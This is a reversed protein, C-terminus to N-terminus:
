LALFRGPSRGPCGARPAGTIGAVRRTASTNASWCAQSKAGGPEHRLINDAAM